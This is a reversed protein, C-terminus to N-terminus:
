EERFDLATLLDKSPRLDPFVWKAGSRSLQVMPYVGSTVGIPTANAAIAATIDIPTDGVILVKRQNPLSYKAVCAEVADKVLKNRDYYDDAYFRETFYPRIGTIKLKEEGVASINGTLVGLVHTASKSLVELLEQVGDNLVDSNKAAEHYLEGMRTLTKPLLECQADEDVGMETLLIKCIQPDVMGAFRSPIVKPEKGTVSRMTDVYRRTEDHQTKQVSLLTGDIDFLVVHKMVHM